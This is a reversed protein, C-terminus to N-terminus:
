SEGRERRTVCRKCMKQEEHYRSNEAKVDTETRCYSLQRGCLGRFTFGNDSEREIHATTTAYFYQASETAGLRTMRGGKAAKIITGAKDLGDEFVPNDRNPASDKYSLAVGYAWELAELLEPAAAILRANAQHARPSLDNGQHHPSTAIFRGHPAVGDAVIWKEPEDRRDLKLTRWPGPTHKDTM